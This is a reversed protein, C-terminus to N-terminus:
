GEGGTDLGTGPVDHEHVDPDVAVGDQGVVGALVLDQPLELPEGQFVLAELSQVGLSQQAPLLELRHKRSLHIVLYICSRVIM